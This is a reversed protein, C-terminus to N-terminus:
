VHSRIVEQLQFCGQSFPWHRYTYLSVASDKLEIVRAHNSISFTSSINIMSYQCDAVAFFAVLLIVDNLVRPTGLPTIVTIDLDSNCLSFSYAADLFLGGLGLSLGCLFLFESQRLNLNSHVLEFM